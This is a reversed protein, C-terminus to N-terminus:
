MELELYMVLSDSYRSTRVFRERTFSFLLEFVLYDGEGSVRNSLVHSPVGEDVLEKFECDSCKISYPIKSYPKTDSILNFGHTSVLSLTLNNKFRGRAKIVFKTKGSVALKDKNYFAEMIGDGFVDVGTLEFPIYHINLYIPVSPLYYYTWVEGTWYMFFPSVNVVGRYNGESLNNKSFIDIISRENLKIIPRVFHFPKSKVDSKYGKKAVCKSGSVRAFRAQEQSKRCVSFVSSGNIGDLSYDGSELKYDLGVVKFAVTISEGSESNTLMVSAKNKTMFTGPLWQTTSIGSEVPQWTIPAVLGVEERQVNLWRFERGKIEANLSIQGFCVSSKLVFIVFLVILCTPYKYKSSKKYPSTIIESQLKEM